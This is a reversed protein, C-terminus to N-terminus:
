LNTAIRAGLCTRCHECNQRGCLHVFEGKTQSNYTLKRNDIKNQATM